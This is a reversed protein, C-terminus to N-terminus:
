ESKFKANNQKGYFKNLLTEDLDIFIVAILMGLAGLGLSIFIWAFANGTRSEFVDYEPTFIIMTESNDYHPSKKVAASIGNIRESAGNLRELYTFNFRENALNRKSNTIFKDWLMNKENEPLNKDIPEDYDMSLWYSYAAEHKMTDNALIPLAIKVHYRLSQSRGIVYYYFDMGANPTDIYYHSLKYYKTKPESKVLNINELQTLVGTTRDMYFQAIVAPVAIAFWTLLFFGFRTNDRYNKKPFLKIKPRLWIMIPIWPLVFPGWFFTVMENIFIHHKIVILWNLFTYGCIFTIAVLLFPLYIIKLKLPLLTM